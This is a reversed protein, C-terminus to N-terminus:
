LSPFTLEYRGTADFISEKVFSRCRHCTLMGTVINTKRTVLKMNEHQLQVARENYRHLDNLCVNNSFHLMHRRLAIADRCWLAFAEHKQIANEETDKSM